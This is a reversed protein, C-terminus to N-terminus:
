KVIAFKKNYAIREQGKEVVIQCIYVGPAIDWLNVENENYGPDKKGQFEKRIDGAVSFIRLSVQDIDEGLRYRITGKSGVIPNPYIYFSKESILNQLVYINDPLLSDPYVANHKVDRRIFPWTLSESNYTSPLEWVYIGSNDAAAVIELRSDNDLNVISPTSYAKGGCSLPFGALKEGKSNYAYIRNNLSGILIDTRDDDDLDCLTISSQFGLSDGTNIPFGNLLSGNKDFAYITAGAAIVVDLYGDGDLDSIAPTSYFTTDKINRQWEINGNEDISSIQGIGTSIVIEYTGDRDMDGAVPSSATFSLSEEFEKWIIKGDKSIKYLLGDNTLVYLYNNIYLPTSWVWHGLMVPFNPMACLTDDQFTIAHIYM